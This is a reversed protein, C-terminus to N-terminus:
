PWTWYNKTHTHTALPYWPIGHNISTSYTNKKESLKTLITWSNTHIHTHTVYWLIINSIEVWTMLIIFFLSQSQVSDKLSRKKPQSRSDLTSNPFDRTPCGTWQHDGKFLFFLFEVDLISELVNMHSIVSLDIYPTNRPKRVPQVRTMRSCTGNM